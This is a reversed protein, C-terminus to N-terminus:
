TCVRKSKSQMSHKGMLIQKIKKNFQETAVDIYHQLSEEEEYKYVVYSKPFYEMLFENVSMSAKTM